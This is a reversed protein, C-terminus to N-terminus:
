RALRIPDDEPARSRPRKESAQDTHHFVPNAYGAIYLRQATPLLEADYTLRKEMREIFAERNAETYHNAYTGKGTLLDAAVYNTPWLKYGGLIKSDILEALYAYRAKDRMERCLELKDPEIPSFTVHVRGKSGCIGTRISAMDEDPQKLYRVGTHRAMLERVKSADCPDWEYSCTTAVLGLSKLHSVSDRGGAMALMKIVAPNTRDNGDKSRGSKQALWVSSGREDIVYAIFESLQRLFRVKEKGILSRKVVFCKMMNFVIRVTENLLLNDGIGARALRIGNKFLMINMVASDLIIDRHNSLYTLGRERPLSALNSCSIGDTTTEFIQEFIPVLIQHQLDTVTRIRKLRRILQVTNLSLDFLRLFPLMHENALVQEALAPGEHEEVYRLSGFQTHQNRTM